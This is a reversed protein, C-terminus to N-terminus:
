QVQEWMMTSGQNVNNSCDTMKAMFLGLYEVGKNVHKGIHEVAFALTLLIPDHM